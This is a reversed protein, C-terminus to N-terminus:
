ALRVRPPAPLPDIPMPTNRPVALIIAVVTRIVPIQPAPRVGAGVALGVGLGVALGVALGVGLGVALVAWGVM